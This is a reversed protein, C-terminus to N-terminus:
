SSYSGHSDLGFSIVELAELSVVTVPHPLPDGATTWLTRLTGYEVRRKNGQLYPSHSINFLSTCM